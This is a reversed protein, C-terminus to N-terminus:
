GVQNPGPNDIDSCHMGLDKLCASEIEPKLQVSHARQRM